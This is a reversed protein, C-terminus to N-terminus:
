ASRSAYRTALNGIIMTWGKTHGEVAAPTALQEHTLVIETHGPKAGARFEVTVLSSRDGTNVSIWTFVLRRPRDIEMYTGTHMIDKTAAHMNISFAGGVRADVEVTSDRTGGSGDNPRMWSGLSEAELWADFLEEPSAEIERRVTLTPPKTMTSM